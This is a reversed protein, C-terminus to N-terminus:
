AAASLWPRQSTLRTLADLLGIGHKATTALYSRIVCFQEAWCWAGARGNRDHHDLVAQLERLLHADCRTHTAQDCTDYPAWGNHVAVRTFCPLVGAADMAEVRGRGHVM